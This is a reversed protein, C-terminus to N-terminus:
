KEEVKEKESEKPEEKPKEEKPEEKTPQTEEKLKEEPSKQKPTEEKTEKAPTEKESQSEAKAKDTPVKEKEAKKKGDKKKTIKVSKKKDGEIVKEKLLLNHVTNSPQAGQSLWYKIRDAKLNVEKTRPNYNGLLELYDGWPDKHKELIIIRYYPQKKKGIRSLRITLM